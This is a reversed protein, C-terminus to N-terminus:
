TIVYHTNEIAGDYVVYLFYHQLLIFKKQLNMLSLLCFIIKYCFSNKRKSWWRLFYHKSLILNKEQKILSFMCFIIKNCFTNKRKSWWHCCLFFFITFYHFKARAGDYVLYLFYHQLSILKKEQEMKSLICM